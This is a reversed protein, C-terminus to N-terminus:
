TDAHHSFRRTRGPRHLDELSIRRVLYIRDVRPWRNHNARRDEEWRRPNVEIIDYKVLWRDEARRHHIAAIFCRVSRLVGRLLQLETAIGRPDFSKAVCAPIPPSRCCHTM